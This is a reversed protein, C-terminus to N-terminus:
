RRGPRVAGAPKGVGKPIRSGTPRVIDPPRAGRAKSMDPRAAKVQKISQSGTNFDSKGTQRNKIEKADQEIANGTSETKKVKVRLTDKQLSRVQAFCIHDAFLFLVIVFFIKGSIKM